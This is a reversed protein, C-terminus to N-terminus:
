AKAIISSDLFDYKFWEFCSIKSYDKFKLRDNENSRDAQTNM